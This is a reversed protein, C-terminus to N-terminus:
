SRSGAGIARGWVTWSCAAPSVYWIAENVVLDHDGIYARQTRLVTLATGKNIVDSPMAPPEYDEPAPIATLDHETDM